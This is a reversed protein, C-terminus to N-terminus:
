GEISILYLKIVANEDKADPGIINGLHTATGKAMVPSYQCIIVINRLTRINDSQFVLLQCKTPSFKIMYEKSFAVAMQLQAKLSFKTPCLIIIDDAYAFAGAFNIGIHCGFGSGKLKLLLEDMYIVFLFPSIIGGQKVGNSVNFYESHCKGWRIRMQQNIYLYAITRAMIPCIERKLLVKM